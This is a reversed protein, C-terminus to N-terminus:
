GRIAIDAKRGLADDSCARPVALPSKRLL